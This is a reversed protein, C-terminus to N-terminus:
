KDSVIRGIGSKVRLIVVSDGQVCGYDEKCKSRESM